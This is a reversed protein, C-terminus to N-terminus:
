SDQLETQTMQRTRVVGTAKAGALFVAVGVFLLADGASILSRFWLPGPLPIVDAISLLRTTSGALVHVFDGAAISLPVTSGRAAQAAAPLVPMGSNAVIVVFNLVLGMGLVTMGPQRRNALAIAALFVFTLIWAWHAVTAAVGGLRLSPLVSQALLLFLLATEGRLGVHALEGLHRGSALRLALGLAICVALIM